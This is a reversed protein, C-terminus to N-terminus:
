GRGFRSCSSRTASTGAAPAPAVHARSRRTGHARSRPRRASPLPRGSGRFLPLPTKPASRASPVRRAACLRYHVRNTPPGDTPVHVFTPVRWGGPRPAARELVRRADAPKMHKTVGLAKAQQTLAVLDQHQQVVLPQDRPYRHPEAVQHCQAFFANVDVHLVLGGVGVRPGESSAGAPPPAPRPPAAPPATAAAASSSPVPAPPAASPAAGGSTSGDGGSAGSSSSTDARAGGFGLGRQMPNRLQPLLFANEPLRRHQRASEVLWAETVIYFEQGKRRKTQLKTLYGQIKQDAVNNVLEHTVATSDYQAHQGGHQTVLDGLEDRPTTTLSNIHLVVGELMHSLLPVRSGFQTKLKKNKDEMYDKHGDWGGGGLKLKERRDAEDDDEARKRKPMPVGGGRGSM